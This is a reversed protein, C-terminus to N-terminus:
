RLPLLGLGLLRAIDRKVVGGTKDSIENKWPTDDRYILEGFPKDDSAIMVLTTASPIRGYIDFCCNFLQPAEAIDKM